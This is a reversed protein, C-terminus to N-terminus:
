AQMTGSYESVLLALQRDAASRREWQGLPACGVAGRRNEISHAKIMGIIM